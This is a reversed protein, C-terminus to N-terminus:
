FLITNSKSGLCKLDQSLMKQLQIQMILYQVSAVTLSDLMKSYTMQKNVKELPSISYKDETYITKWWNKVHM